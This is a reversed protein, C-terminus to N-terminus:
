ELEGLLDEKLMKFVLKLVKSQSFTTELKKFMFCKFFFRSFLAKSVIKIFYFRLSIKQM